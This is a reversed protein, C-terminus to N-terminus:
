RRPTPPVRAAARPLSADGPEVVLLRTGSARRRGRCGDAATDREFVADFEFDSGAGPRSSVRVEGGMLECWSAPQHGAGARHRRLPAHDLADSRRSRSSCGARHAEAAHRHRHRAGRLATARTAPPPRRERTSAVAGGRRTRHVQGRQRAPQAAGPAAADADGVLARAARRRRRLLRARPRKARARQPALLDLAAEVCERSTSRRAARPGAARGRDELLRPHRQHHDLLADGRTASRRRRLRAARADLPTDLLLGTMGIM